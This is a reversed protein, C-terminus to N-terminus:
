GSDAEELGGNDTAQESEAVRAHKRSIEKRSARHGIRGGRPPNGPNESANVRDARV